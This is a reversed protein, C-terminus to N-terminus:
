WLNLGTLNNNRIVLQELSTFSTVDLANLNNYRISLYTLNPLGGLSFEVINNYDLNLVNVNVFYELGTVNIINNGPLILDGNYNQAETLQIESDGNLDISPEHDLLAIKLNSDPINVIQANIQTCICIFLGCILILLKSEM